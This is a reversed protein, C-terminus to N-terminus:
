VEAELENIEDRWAQRQKKMKAYESASLQGEAYKIAQYDTQALSNKLEAIRNQRQQEQSIVIERLDFSKEILNSLYLEKGSNAMGVLTYYREDNIEVYPTPVVEYNIFDPYFGEVKKTTQNYHVKIM